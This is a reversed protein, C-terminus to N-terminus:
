TAWAVFFFGQRLARRLQLYNSSYTRLRKYQNSYVQIMHSCCYTMCGDRVVLLLQLLGLEVVKHYSNDELPHVARRRAEIWVGIRQGRRCTCSWDQEPKKGQGVKGKKNKGHALVALINRTSNKILFMAVYKRSDEKMTYSKPLVCLQSIISSLNVGSTKIHLQFMYKWSPTCCLCTDNPASTNIKPWSQGNEWNQQMINSGHLDLEEGHMKQEESRPLCGFKGPSSEQSVSLYAEPSPVLSCLKLIQDCGDHALCPQMGTVAEIQLVGRFWVGKMQPCHQSLQSTLLGEAVSSVAFNHPLAVQLLMYGSSLLDLPCLCLSRCPCCLHLFSPISLTFLSLVHCLSLSLHM